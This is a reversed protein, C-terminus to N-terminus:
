VVHNGSVYHEVKQNRPKEGEVPDTPNKPITWFTLFGASLGAFSLEMGAITLSTLSNCVDSHCEVILIFGSILLLISLLGNTVCKSWKFCKSNLNKHSDEYPNLIIFLIM